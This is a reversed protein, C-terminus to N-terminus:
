GAIDTAKVTVIHGGEALAPNIVLEWHGNQDAYVPGYPKGDIVVEIKTGPEATGSFTPTTTNTASGNGGPVTPPEPTVPKDTKITITTGASESVNGAIDTAKVTVTHDGEGLEESLTIEWHGNQDAYVPGYPKGDIVIEIKTGPEATGSF